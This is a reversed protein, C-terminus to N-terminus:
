NRYAAFRDFLNGRDLAALFAAVNPLRRELLIPLRIGGAPVIEIQCDV